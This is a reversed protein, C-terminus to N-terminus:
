VLPVDVLVQQVSLNIERDDQMEELCDHGSSFKLSKLADKIAM